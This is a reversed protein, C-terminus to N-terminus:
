GEFGTEFWFRGDRQVVEGDIELRADESMDILFDVHTASENMEIGDPVCEELANGLALHVTDGMKEDFLINGTFRDIGRNMGIGLEGLRRAGEDTTLISELADENRDAGYAVVEGAEFALWAGTIEKGARLRPFDFEVRGEASDLVPVTAVEGDPMNHTGHSNMGEMGAISFTLDTGEGVVISVAEGSDLKAAVRAQREKQAEWDRDIADYVFDTWADTGMGAKQADARTPHQTIVWRTDLRADLVPANARSNARAKEPDIDRGEMANANGAVLIVADTEAMASREHAKTEFDDVDRARAYAVGARSNHWQLSPLAGRQGLEEYLAVVLDDAEAPAKILVCDGQQIDTSHEVLLEAHRRTRSDM